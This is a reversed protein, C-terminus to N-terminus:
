IALQLLLSLLCRECCSYLHRQRSYSNQQFLPQQHDTHPPSSPSVPEKLLLAEVLFLADRFCRLVQLSEAVWWVDAHTWRDISKQVGVPVRVGACSTQGWLERREVQGTVWMMKGMKTQAGRTGSPLKRLSDRGHPVSRQNERIFM